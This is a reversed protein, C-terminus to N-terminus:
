AGALHKFTTRTHIFFTLLHWKGSGQLFSFICAPKACSKQGVTGICEYAVFGSADELAARDLVNPNWFMSPLVELERGAQAAEVLQQPLITNANM